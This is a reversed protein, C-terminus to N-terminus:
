PSPIAIKKEEPPRRPRDPLRHRYPRHPHSAGEGTLPIRHARARRRVPRARPLQKSITAVSHPPSRASLTINRGSGKKRQKARRSRLRWQPKKQQPALHLPPQRWQPQRPQKRALCTPLSCTCVIRKLQVRSSLNRQMLPPPLMLLFQLLLPLFLLLM